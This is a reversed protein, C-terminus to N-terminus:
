QESGTSGDVARGTQKLEDEMLGEQRLMQQLVSADATVDMADDEFLKNLQKDLAITMTHIIGETETTIRDFNEGKLHYVEVYTKMLKLTTPMYYNLFKHMKPLDEPHSRLQQVVALLSKELGDVEEAILGDFSSVQEKIKRVADLYLECEALEKEQETLPSSDVQPKEEEKPEEVPQSVQTKKPLTCLVTIITVVVSTLGVLFYDAPGRFTFLLGSFLWTIGFAYIPAVSRKKKQPQYQADKAM